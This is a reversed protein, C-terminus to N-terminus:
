IYNSVTVNEPLPMDATQGTSFSFFVNTTVNIVPVDMCVFIVAM